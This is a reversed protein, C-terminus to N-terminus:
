NWRWAAQSISRLLSSLGMDLVVAELVDTTRCLFHRFSRRQSWVDLLLAEKEQTVVISENLAKPTNQFSATM